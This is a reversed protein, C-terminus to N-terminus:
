GNNYDPHVTGLLGSEQGEVALDLRGVRELVQLELLSELAVLLALLSQRGEGVSALAAVLGLRLVVEVEGVLEDVVPVADPEALVLLVAEGAELAPLLGDVADLLLEAPDLVSALLGM